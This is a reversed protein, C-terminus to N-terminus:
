EVSDNRQRAIKAETEAAKIDRKAEREAQKVGSRIVGSDLDPRLQHIAEGLSVSNVGTVRPKLEAFPVNLNRSVNLAAVFQGLNRFDSAATNLELGSPLRSSLREALVPNRTFHENLRASNRMEGARSTQGHHGRNEIRRTDSRPSM